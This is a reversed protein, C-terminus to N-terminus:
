QKKDIAPNEEEMLLQKETTLAWELDLTRITIDTPHTSACVSVTRLRASLRCTRTPRKNDQFVSCPGGVIWRSRRGRSM